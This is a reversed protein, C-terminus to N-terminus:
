KRGGLSFLHSLTRLYMVGGAVAPTAYSSEGLPVRSLLEFKDAAALVVVDGNKAICYLRGSVWVPSGYFSGGVRQRWIVEGSAAKLCTVIGSDTWPSSHGIGPLEVKWNYDRETWKAPVTLAESIGSGNPGRFRTWDDEAAVATSAWALIAAVRILRM